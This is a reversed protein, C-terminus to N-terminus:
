VIKRNLKQFIFIIQWFGWLALEDKHERSSTM